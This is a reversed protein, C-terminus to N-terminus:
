VGESGGSQDAGDYGNATGREWRIAGVGMRSKFSDSWGLPFDFDNSAGAGLILVTRTEIM